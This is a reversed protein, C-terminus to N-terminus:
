PNYVYNGDIYELYRGDATVADLRVQISGAGGRLTPSTFNFGKSSGPGRGCATRYQTDTISSGSWVNFEARVCGTTNSKVTGTINVSRQYFTMSGNTYGSWGSHSTGSASFPQKSASTAAMAEGTGLGTMLAAGALVAGAAKARAKIM